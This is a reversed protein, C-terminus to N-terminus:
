KLPFGLGFIDSKKNDLYLRIADDLVEGTKRGERLAQVRLENWIKFAGHARDHFHGLHELNGLLADFELGKVAHSLGEAVSEQLHRVPNAEIAGM